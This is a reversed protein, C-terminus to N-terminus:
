PNVRLRILNDALWNWNAEVRPIHCGPKAADPHGAVVATRHISGWFVYDQRANIRSRILRNLRDREATMRNVHFDGSISNPDRNL